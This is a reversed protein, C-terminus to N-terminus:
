PVWSDTYVMYILDIRKYDLHQAEITYQLSIVAYVAKAQYAHLEDSVAALCKIERAVATQFLYRMGCGLIDTLNRENFISTYNTQWVLTEV